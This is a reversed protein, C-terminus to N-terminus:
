EKTFMEKFIQWFTSPKYKKDEESQGSPNISEIEKIIDYEHSHTENDNDQDMICTHPTYDKEIM